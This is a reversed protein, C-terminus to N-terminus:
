NKSLSALIIIYISSKHESTIELLEKQALINFSLFSKKCSVLELMILKMLFLLLLMTSSITEKKICFTSINVQVCRANIWWSGSLAKKSSLPSFICKLPAPILRNDTRYIYTSSSYINFKSSVNNFFCVEEIIPGYFSKPSINSLSANQKAIFPM